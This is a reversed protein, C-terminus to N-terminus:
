RAKALAAGTHWRSAWQQVQLLIWVSAASTSREGALFGRAANNAAEPDLLGSAKVRQVSLQEELLPRLPGRLWEAVPPSFGQKPRQFLEPPFHRELLRRLIFKGQRGRIKWHLPLAAALKAAEHDLFPERAELSTAMSARDVKVLLDGPLYRQLDFNM